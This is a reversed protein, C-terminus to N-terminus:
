PQRGNSGAATEHSLPVYGRQLGGRLVRRAAVRLRESGVGSVKSVAPGSHAGAPGVLVARPLLSLM